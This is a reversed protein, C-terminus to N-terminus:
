GRSFFQSGTGLRERLSQLGRHCLNQVAKEDRDMVVAVEATALGDIYRLRLAQRYEDKLGDMATEIQRVAEHNAASQSPTHSHVAVMNLLDVVASDAADLGAEIPARGAGRKAAQRARIMDLLRHDAIAALWRFFADEGQPRFQYIDRCAQAFAEQLVDDSEITGRLSPPMRTSVRASLREYERLLLREIAARDGAVAQALL